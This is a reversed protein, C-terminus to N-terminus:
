TPSKNGVKILIEQLRRHDAPKTLHENFGAERSREIDESTGYGTMAVLYVDRLDPNSRIRRAVEYGDLEPLGIDVIAVDPHQAEITLAGSRGDAAEVVAFGQLELLQRLAARSDAQDEVLVIRLNRHRTNGNGSEPRQEEVAPEANEALPLHVIFTSGKGPGDSQAEIRGGHRVVLDKALALGVGLGGKTRDLERQGQVFLEFVHPLLEADIGEGEDSVIIRAEGNGAELTLTVQSGAESYRAANSLLNVCVQQLRAADGSCPVATDAIEQLLNVGANRLVPTTSEIAYYVIDRLDVIGTRLEIKGRAVRSVDLLDDLLRSMHRCQREIIDRAKASDGGSGEELTNMWHVANLTAALPNRLEHSLMALFRERQQAEQEMKRQAQRRETIDLFTVVAGTVEDGDRIPHSWYEADFSTGDSRWLVEDDVHNDTDEHIARYVRCEKIPYRSGDARAHHILWHMNKGILEDPSDYGLLRVCSPNAFTCYGDHDIGYIAEATSDLLLSIRQQREESERQARKLLSVDRAISSAGAIEGNPALIPSITVEVEVVRDDKTCRMTEVRQIREGRRLRDMFEKFEHEQDDPFLMLISQGIAEAATYGYLNEAGKNWSTITGDLDKGIISDSSSEVIAILRAVDIRAAVLGSIDTTTVVVGSISGSEQDDAAIDEASRTSPPRYPLVRLYFVEGGESSVEEEIPEGGDLVREIDRMLGPRHLNPAFDSLERGIDSETIRFVPAIRSTFRRIHLRDDLFLIGVDTGDLLHRMDSNSEHLEALRKQHEANVTYLEENISHLEENTSQLEENSAVLEENTSQLEENSSQLEEVTAQLMEQTYALEGELTAVHQKSLDSRSRSAASDNETVTEVTEDLELTVLLHERNERPAKVATVGLRIFQEGSGDEMRVRTYRVEDRNSLAHHVAASVASALEPPLMELVNQSPRRKPVALFKEAGAFVDVLSYNSEILLSPPMYRDLLRDYVNILSAEGARGAQLPPRTTAAAAASRVRLVEVSETLRVDRRKRFLKLRDDISTFEDKLADPTESMGLALVGDVMLGFHLLSLVTRQAPQELYILMNRCTIMHMRTFPTDRTLDHTAFVVIKRLENRVRFGGPVKEFFRERREDSLVAVREATYVGASAMALSGPHIDTALIKAKVPRELREHAEIVLMALSYAEEGTACGAVWIRLEENAAVTSLTDPLISQEITSFVESDRFFETVGILLDCYLADVEDADSRLRELYKEPSDLGILSARRDVRRAVTTTKYLSFDIGTREHLLWLISQLVGVSRDGDRGYRGQEDAGLMRLYQGIETAALVRDAAGTATATLPMGDFKATDPQEVLVTGGHKKVARIGRSGDSGTGSLVIAVTRAGADAALSAFFRDIPFALKRGAKKEHLVLRGADITMEKGPPLLYVRNAAVAEGDEALRVSMSTQRGLIEDMLSRFDPSLHQVIVFALGPEDPLESFVRELSELGGASAGLGVITTGSKTM